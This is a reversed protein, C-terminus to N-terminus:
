SQKNLDIPLLEYDDFDIDFYTLLTPYTLPHLYGKLGKLMPCTRWRYQKVRPKFAEDNFLSDNNSTIILPTKTVVSHGQYKVNAPCPDGATLMKVTDYASPMISPENWQLIRRNVCDNLPFHEGRVFNAIHGVNVYYACIMDCFYTKGSNPPGSLFLTNCKALKREAWDHVFQMFDRCADEDDDFQFKLFDIAIYKSQLETFYHNESRAYWTPNQAILNYWKQFDKITYHQIERNFQEVARKYDIDGKHFYALYPDQLWAKIECTSHVPCVVFQKIADVLKRHEEIKSRLKGNPRFEYGPVSSSGEANSEESSTLSVTDKPRLYSAEWPFECDELSGTSESEEAGESQGMNTLQHIQESLDMEEIHIEMIRRPAKLYYELWNHWYLGALENGYVVRRGRRQKIRSGRLFRCRCHSGNFPCGHYIHAHGYESTQDSGIKTKEPHWIIAWTRQMGFKRANELLGCCTDYSIEPLIDGLWRFSRQSERKFNDLLNQRLQMLLLVRQQNNRGIEDTGDGGIGEDSGDMVEGGDVTGECVDAIGEMSASEGAFMQRESHKGISRLSDNGYATNGDHNRKM